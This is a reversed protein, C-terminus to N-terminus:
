MRRKQLGVGGLFRHLQPSGAYGVFALRVCRDPVLARSPAIHMRRLGCLMLATRNQVCM